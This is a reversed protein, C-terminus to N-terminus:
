HKVTSKGFLHGTLDEVKHMTWLLGDAFLDAHHKADLALQREHESLHSAEITAVIASDKKVSRETRM